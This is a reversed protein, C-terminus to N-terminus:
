DSVPEDRDPIIVVRKGHLISDDSLKGWKGAGGPNCTAPLGLARLNDVDKEGECVFVWGNKDAALIGPLRYLVRATDGLSWIWGGKGDPRRQRFDKPDFRVVEFLLAGSADCYPYQAAIRGRVPPPETPSTRRLRPSPPFLDALKLGIASVIAEPDCGAHCNLLIRGDEGMGISLSAHRDDHAPCCAEWGNPTKKVNELKTLVKELAESRSM